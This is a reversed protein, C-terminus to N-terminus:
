GGEAPLSQEQDPQGEEADEGPEPRSAPDELPLGRAYRAILEVMRDMRDRVLRDSRGNVLLSFALPARGEPDALGSITLAGGLTGTKAFIHGEAGGGRLRPALTGSKGAVALTPLLQKRLRANGHLLGLLEVLTRATVWARRHLGSGNGLEFGSLGLSSLASRLVRLGRSWSGPPGAPKEVASRVAPASAPGAEPLFSMARVLTEAALNDSHQNAAALVEGLSHERRVLVRAGEPRRGRRVAGTVKVGAQTLARRLAWGANLSPEPVARRTFFPPAKRGVTGSITLWVTSGRNEMAVKVQAKCAEPCRKAKAYRVLKRVAVYDSPPTVDVRPRRPRDRPASVKIEIANSDVNIAGSTPRYHSGEAFEEFGPALRQRGFHTDDVVIGRVERVGRAQLSKAMRVLDATRLIPDGTGWLYLPGGAGARSVETVFRYKGPLLVAAALTTLLKANSAPLRHADPALEFLPRTLGPSRGGGGAEGAPVTAPRSAPGAAAPVPVVLLSVRASSLEPAHLEAELLRRLLALRDEAAPPSV